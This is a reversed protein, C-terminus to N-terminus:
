GNLKRAQKVPWIPQTDDVKDSAQVKAVKAVAVDKAVIVDTIFDKLEQVRDGIGLAANRQEQESFHVLIINDSEFQLEDIRRTQAEELTEAPDPTNGADMWQQLEQRDRNSLNDPIFCSRETDLFGGFKSYKYKAM